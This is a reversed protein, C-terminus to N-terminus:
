SVEIGLAEIFLIVIFMGVAFPTSVYIITYLLLDLLPPKYFWKVLLVGSFVAVGHCFYARKAWGLKNKEFANDFVHSFLVLSWVYAFIYAAGLWVLFKNIEEQAFGSKKTLYILFVSGIGFGLVWAITFLVEGRNM